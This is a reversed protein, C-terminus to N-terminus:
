MQRRELVLVLDEGGLGRRDRAVHCPHFTNRPSHELGPNPSQTECNSDRPCAWLPGVPELVQWEGLLM